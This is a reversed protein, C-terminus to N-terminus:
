PSKRARSPMSRSTCSPSITHTSPGLPLPLLEISRTTAPSSGPASPVTLQSPRSRRLTGGCRRPKPNINWSWASKGWRSTTPFTANPRRMCPSPRVSASVRAAFRKREDAEVAEAGAADRLQRATLLLADGKGAGEGRLRTQQHEVFREAREVAGQAVPQHGFQTRQERAEAQRDQEHGVVVALGERQGVPEDHHVLPADLLLARRAVHPAPRGVPEHGAEEPPVDGAGEPRGAVEDRHPGVVQPDDVLHGPGPGAHVPPTVARM